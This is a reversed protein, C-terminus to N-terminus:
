TSEGLIAARKRAILEKARKMADTETGAYAAAVVPSDNESSEESSATEETANANKKSRRRVIKPIEVMHNEMGEIYGNKIIITCDDPDTTVRTGIIQIDHDKAFQDLEALSDSDLQELKDVFMFKCSPNIRMVIACGVRIKM